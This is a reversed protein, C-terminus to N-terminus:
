SVSGVRFARAPLGVTARSHSVDILGVTLGNFLIVQWAAIMDAMAWLLKGVAKPPANAPPSMAWVIRGGTIGPKWFNTRHGAPSCPSWAFAFSASDFHPCGFPKAVLM